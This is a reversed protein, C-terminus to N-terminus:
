LEDALDRLLEAGLRGAGEFWWKELEDDLEM